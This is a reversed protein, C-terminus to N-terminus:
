RNFTTHDFTIVAYYPADELALRQNLGETVRKKANDMDYPMVVDFILNTHGPGQVMRFDHISLRSDVAQLHAVVLAQMRNSEENDTVVPDYHVVLHINHYTLFDREIDDIIDHCALPNERSDMEVHVTAFCRGPGYDHIMMDHLGLVKPYQLIGQALTQKMEETPAAGLLPSITDKAISVGSWVIFLAVLLGVYGDLHLHTMHSIVTCVLVATTTLVDNRCDIATALLTQSDIRKGLRRNFLALWVKVLISGGLVALTVASCTVDEPHFIRTVSSQALEVGIVLILGAVVMAAVYEMRAHGYPHDEDAPKEALKFGVLTVVSASADSLNNIADATIAVSGSLSGVVLKGAFLLVNCLIGVLGALVGYAGRVKPSKVDEYNPVFKKLLIEVVFM